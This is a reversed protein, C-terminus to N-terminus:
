HTRGMVPVRSHGNPECCPGDFLFCLRSEVGTPGSPSFSRYRPTPHPLSPSRGAENPQRETERHTAITIAMMALHPYRSVIPRKIHDNDQHLDRHLQPQAPTSTRRRENELSLDLTTMHRSTERELQKGMQVM